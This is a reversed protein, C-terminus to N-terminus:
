LVAIEGVRNQEILKSIEKAAARAEPSLTGGFETTKPQIGIFVIEGVFEDLYDLLLYLPLMHTGLGAHRIRRRDVRRFAGPPLQFDAADVVVLRAPHKKRIMSTFNEPTTACKLVQWGPHRFHRAIYDGVGDDGRDANGIGMLMNM